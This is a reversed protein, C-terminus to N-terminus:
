LACPSLAKPDQWLSMFHCIEFIQGICLYDVAKQARQPQKPMELLGRGDCNRVHLSLLFASWIAAAVRILDFDPLQLEQILALTLGASSLVAPWAIM